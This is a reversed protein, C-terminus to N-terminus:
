LEAEERVQAITSGALDSDRCILLFCSCQTAVRPHQGNTQLFLPDFYVEISTRRAQACEPAVHLRIGESALM